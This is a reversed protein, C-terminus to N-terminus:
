SAGLGLATAVAGLFVAPGFRFEALAAQPLQVRREKSRFPNAVMTGTNKLTALLKGQYALRAPALVLAALFSYMQLQLGLFPGLLSGMAVLLKLDGGGMANKKWLLFPVVSTLVIGLASTGFFLWASLDPYARHSLLVQTLTGLTLAGLTLWNPIHGTRLDLLAALLSILAALLLLQTQLPLDLLLHV